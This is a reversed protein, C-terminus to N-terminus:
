AKLESLSANSCQRVKELWFLLSEVCNGPQSLDVVICVAGFNVLNASVLPAQMLSALIRGGGVEYTNM